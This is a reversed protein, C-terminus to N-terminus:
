ETVEDLKPREDIIEIQLPEDKDGALIKKESEMMNHNAKLQFIAGAPFQYMSKELLRLKQLSKIRKITASYEPYKLGGEENKAKAWLMVTEDDLDMELALEEIYPHKGTMKTFRALYEKAHELVEDNYKTPRGGKYQRLKIAAM